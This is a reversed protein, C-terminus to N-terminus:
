VSPCVPLAATEKRSIAARFTFDGDHINFRPDPTLDVRGGTGAGFTWDNGNQSVSGSTADM